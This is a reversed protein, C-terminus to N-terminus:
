WSIGPIRNLTKRAARRAGSEVMAVRAPRALAHARDRVDHARSIVGTERNADAADTKGQAAASDPFLLYGQHHLRGTLKPTLFQGIQALTGLPTDIRRPKEVIGRVVIAAATQPSLVRANDYAETPAIMKTRTLPMHINTFTIHDSLTETATVDSFAELAAKSAVYAAFRPGRAQVGISSVNVIHGVNREKMHPLLALTLHVAGFYNVAMTREYDHNRDVADITARRISRGANNVLVDVHDHETLIAKITLNVAESDTIDCPYAYAEGRHGNQATQESRLEDVAAELEDAGRALLFVVAGKRVCQRATEKGIGASGGTILIHSGALPGAPNRRRHRSPDLHEHWYRWLGPGYDALDPLAVGYGALVGFTKDAKFITPISLTDLIAPPIGQQRAILDRGTRIVGHSSRDVVPAVFRHPVLDRGHPGAFAPAIANYMETITQPHPSVLHFVEGGPDPTGPPAEALDHRMLTVLADAVFDVPVMNTLGMDPMPVTWRSPLRGLERLYGFFYYPGDVKDMEGTVSDGVVIAPRYVRWRLNEADRVLRESEFKTRHYPSPFQQGLDFDAETFEGAHDGAVAISSVHHLMAGRERAFAIVRATGDVNASQQDAASAAMDYIAGLHLVHEINSLDHATTDVGLDPATLDGEVATIRDGGPWHAKATTLRQVSGPRVLVFVTSDGGPSEEAELAALLLRLVRRGIFGTGGTIFYDSM